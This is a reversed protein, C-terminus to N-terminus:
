AHSQPAEAMIDEEAVPETEIEEEGTGNCVHCPGDDWDDLHGRYIRGEGDCFGCRVLRASPSSGDLSLAGQGACEACRQHLDSLTM